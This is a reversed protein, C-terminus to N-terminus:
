RSKVTPGSVSGPAQATSDREAEGRTSPAGEFSHSPVAKLIPALEAEEIPLMTEVMAAIDEDLLDPYQAVLAAAIPLRLDGWPAGEAQLRLASRSMAAQWRATTRRRGSELRLLGDAFLKEV